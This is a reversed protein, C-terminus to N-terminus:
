WGEIVKEFIGLGNHVTTINMVRMLGRCGEVGVGVDKSGSGCRSCDLAESGADRPHGYISAGGGPSHKLLHKPPPPPDPVWFNTCWFHGLWTKGKTFKTKGSRVEVWEDM